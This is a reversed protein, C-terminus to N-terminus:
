EGWEVSQSAQWEEKKRGGIGKGYGWATSSPVQLEQTEEIDEEPKRVSPESCSCRSCRSKMRVKWQKMGLLARNEVLQNGWVFDCDCTRLLAQLWQPESPRLQLRRRRIEHCVPLSGFRSGTIIFTRTRAEVQLPWFLLLLIDCGFHFWSQRFQRYHQMTKYLSNFNDLMSWIGLDQSFHM